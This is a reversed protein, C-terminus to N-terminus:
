GRASTRVAVIETVVIRPSRIPLAPAQRTRVDNFSAGSRRPASQRRPTTENTSVIRAYQSRGLADSEDDGAFNDRESEDAPVRKAAGFADVKPGDRPLIGALKPQIHESKM